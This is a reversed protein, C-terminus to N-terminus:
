QTAAEASSVRMILQDGDGLTERVEVRLDPPLGEDAEHLARSRSALVYGVHPAHKSGHRLLETL